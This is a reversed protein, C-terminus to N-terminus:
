APTAEVIHVGWRGTTTDKTIEIKCNAPDLDPNVLDANVYSALEANADNVINDQIWTDDYGADVAYVVYSLYYNLTAVVTALTRRYKFFPKLETSKIIHDYTDSKVEDFLAKKGLLVLKAKPIAGVIKDRDGVVRLIIKVNNLFANKSNTIGEEFDGGEAFANNRNTIYDSARAPMKVKRKLMIKNYDPHSESVFEAYGANSRNVIIEKYADEDPVVRQLNTLIKERKGKFTIEWDDGIESVESPLEGLNLIGLHVNYIEAM